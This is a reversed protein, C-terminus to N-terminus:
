KPPLNQNEIDQAQVYMQQQAPAVKKAAATKICAYRSWTMILCVSM